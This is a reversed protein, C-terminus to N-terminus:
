TARKRADKIHIYIEAMTKHEACCERKCASHCLPDHFAVIYLLLRALGGGNEDDDYEDDVSGCTRSCNEM